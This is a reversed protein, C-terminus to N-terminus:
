FPHPKKCDGDHERHAPRPRLRLLRPFNGAYTEQIWTISGAARHEHVHEPLLQALKSPYLSLIDGDLVAKGLLLILAQRLKRRVQNSM